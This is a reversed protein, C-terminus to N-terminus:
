IKGINIKYSLKDGCRLKEITLYLELRKTEEEITIYSQSATNLNMRILRAMLSIYDNAEIRRDTNVLHQVSNLSNFIFHPNMMASLAQHQLINMRKNLELLEKNKREIYCLLL